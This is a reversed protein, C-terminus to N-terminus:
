AAATPGPDDIVARFFRYGKGLLLNVTEPGSM